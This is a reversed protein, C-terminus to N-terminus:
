PAPPCDGVATFLAAALDVAAAQDPPPVDADLTTTRGGATVLFRMADSRGAPASADSLMAWPVSRARALLAPPLPM